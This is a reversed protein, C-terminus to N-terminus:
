GEATPQTCYSKVKMQASTRRYSPWSDIAKAGAILRKKMGNHSMALDYDEAESVGNCLTM